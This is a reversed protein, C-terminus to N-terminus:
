LALRQGRGLPGDFGEAPSVGRRRSRSDIGRDLLILHAKKGGQRVRNVQCRGLELRIPRQRAGSPVKQGIGDPRPGQLAQHLRNTGSLDDRQGVVVKMEMGMAAVVVPGRETLVRNAQDLAIDFGGPLAADGLKPEGLVEIAGSLASSDKAPKPLAFRTSIKAVV